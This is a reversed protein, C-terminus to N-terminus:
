RVSGVVVLAESEISVWRGSYTTSQRKLFNYGTDSWLKM